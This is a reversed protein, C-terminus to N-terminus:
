SAILPLYEYGVYEYGVWANGVCVGLGALDQWDIPEILWDPGAPGHRRQRLIKLQLRHKVTKPGAEQLIALRQHSGNTVSM